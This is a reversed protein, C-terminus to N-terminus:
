NGKQSTTLSQYNHEDSQDQLPNRRLPEYNSPEEYKHDGNNNNHTSPFSEDYIVDNHIGSETVVEDYASINDGTTARRQGDINQMEKMRFNNDKMRQMKKWLFVVVIGLALIVVLSVSFLAFFVKSM